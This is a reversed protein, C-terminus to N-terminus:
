SLLKKRLLGGLALLGTGLLSLSAPEPVAPPPAFGAFNGSFGDQLSFGSPTYSKANTNIILIWTTNGALVDPVWSFSVVSGDSTRHASTPKKGGTSFGFLPGKAIGVDVLWGAFSASTLRAIDGKTVKVQFMFTMDTAGFPNGSWHGVSEQVFGKDVNFGGLNYPMFGTTALQVFVGSQITSFGGLPVTAGPNLTTALAPTAVAGLLFMVALLSQVIRNM